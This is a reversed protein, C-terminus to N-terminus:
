PRGYLRIYRALAWLPFVNRYSTYTEMCNKNFVGSIGEQPWDGYEDQRSMLFDVGRDIVSKDPYGAAMLGLLAWGTNIIQGKEHQIYEMRVCSLFSEGWSGDPNQKSVLFECAKRIAPSPNGDRYTAEGGNVLGEIGFWTAYTFCVGWSGYWSGDARQVSKIFARGKEIARDIEDARYDPFTSRFKRLGQLTASSCESYCVETMIESFIRSPNLKDLWKPGRVKEYSAWGGNDNQLYLLLDITPKLREKDLKIGEKAIPATENLMLASKMGESTCDTVPWGQDRTSFAWGGVTVDRFYRDHQRYNVRIQNDDFFKYSRRAMEPFTEAMGSEVLAQTAFATDWLQSGNYGNMKLGDEAVWLYDQWRETHKRFQESDKGHRHWVCLSNIVQNVPGINIYQTQEDEADIYEAIFDLAKKRWSKVAIKEYFNALGSFAKYLGTLGVYEDIEHCQKRAKKWNISNYDGPYLEQRLQKTLETKPATIRHGFCYTMPLYVMRAHPWYRGPHVPLWRPMIWIEPFLSDNGEWEYVGLVSLYFKGWPPVFTAGGHDHIWQRAKQMEPEDPGQGLLRLTVYQMVTGFMTSRDEIHLGWGGDKNQHNYLYQAILEQQPVPLPTQTIHSVIVLGPLLFMPGGYDSPWNGEPKQLLRYFEFGRYLSRYVRRSRDDKIESPIEIDDDPIRRPAIKSRYVLDSSNPNKSKDWRFAKRMGTLFAKAEPHDWGHKDLIKRIDAPPHFEWTQRSNESKLQWCDWYPNSEILGTTRDTSSEM